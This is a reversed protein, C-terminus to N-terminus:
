QGSSGDCRDSARSRRGLLLNVVGSLVLLVGAPLEGFLKYAAVVGALLALSVVVQQWTLNQIGLTSM